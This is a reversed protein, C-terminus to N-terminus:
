LNQKKFHISNYGNNYHETSFFCKFPESLDAFGDFSIRSILRNLNVEM